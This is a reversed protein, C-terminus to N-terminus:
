LIILKYEFEITDSSSYYKHYTYRKGTQSMPEKPDQNRWYMTHLKELEYALEADVITQPFEGFEIEKVGTEKNLTTPAFDKIAKYSVVPRCGLTEAACRKTEMTDKSSITVVKGRYPTKTWYSGTRETPDVGKEYFENGGCYVAFDTVKSKTGYKEFIELAEEGYIQEATLLDCELNM